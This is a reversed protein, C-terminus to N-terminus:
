GGNRPNGYEASTTLAIPCYAIHHFLSLSKIPLLDLSLDKFEFFILCVNDQIPNQHKENEIRTM